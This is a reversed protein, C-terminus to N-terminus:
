VAYKAAAASATAPAIPPRQAGLPYGLAWAGASPNRGRVRDRPIAAEPLLAGGAPGDDVVQAHLGAPRTAGAYSGSRVCCLSPRAPDLGRAAAGRGAARAALARGSRDTKARRQTGRRARTEATEALHVGAGRVCRRACSCGVRAPRSRSRSRRTGSATSGVACPGPDAHIRGRHVEGTETDLADFTIQARHVDFGGEIAM